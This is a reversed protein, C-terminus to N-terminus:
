QVQVPKGNKLTWVQKNGFTTHVGEKLQAVASAPMTTKTNVIKEQPFYQENWVDFRRPDNRALLYTGVRRASDMAYQVNKVNTDLLERLAPDTMKANPSAEQLQLKVEGQTMKAGYIAKANQLAANTLYKSLEQYNTTQNWDGPVWRKAQAIVGTWNGGTAGKSDLVDQAAKLFTMAQQSAKTVTKADGYLDQRSKGVEALTEKEPISPSKGAEQKPMDPAADLRYQQDSLASAMAPDSSTAGDGPTKAEQAAKIAAAQAQAKPAGSVTPSAGQVGQRAAMKLMWDAANAAGQGPSQWRPVQTTSGDSNQVPVLEYASKALGSWQEASLGANPVGNVPLGTVEDRYIGGTDATVKRGSYQHVSAGVHTALSRAAADEAAEDPVANKIQAAAAPNIAELAAMAQGAPASSVSSMGDYLINADRQNAATRSQLGLDRNMKAYEQFGPNGSIAAIKLMQQDQPTGAPDVYFRKRLGDDVAAPDFPNASGRDPAVGSQDAAPGAANNALLGSLGTKFLQLNMAAQQNAIGAGQAQQQLLGTAAQTQAIQAQGQPYSNLLNGYDQVPVANVEAM